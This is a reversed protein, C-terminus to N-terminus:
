IAPRAKAIGNFKRWVSLEIMANNLNWGQSPAAERIEKATATPHADLWLWIADCRGGPKPRKVGNRVERQMKPAPAPKAARPAKIPAAAQQAAPQEQEAQVAPAEAQAVADASVLVEDAHKAKRTTVQAATKPTGTKKTESKTTQKKKTM